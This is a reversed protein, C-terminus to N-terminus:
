NNNWSLLDFQLHLWSYVVLYLYSGLWLVLTVVLLPVGTPVFFACILLVLGTIELIWVYRKHVVDYIYVNSVSGTNGPTLLLIPSCWPVHRFNYGVWILFWLAVNVVLFRPSIDGSQSVFADLLIFNHLVFLFLAPLSVFHAIVQKEEDSLTADWSVPYRVRELNSHYARIHVFLPILVILVPLLTFGFWKPVFYIPHADINWWAPVSNPTDHWKFLGRFASVVALVSALAMPHAGM